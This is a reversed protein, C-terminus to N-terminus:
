DDATASEIVTVGAVGLQERLVKVVRKGEEGPIPGILKVAVDEEITKSDSLTRGSIWISKQGEPRLYCHYEIVVWVVPAAM